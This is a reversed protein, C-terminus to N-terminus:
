EVFARIAEEVMDVKPGPHPINRDPQVVSPPVTVYEDKM